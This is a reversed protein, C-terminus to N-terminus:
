RKNTIIAGAKKLRSDGARPLTSANSISINKIAARRTNHTAFTITTVVSGMYEWSHGNFICLQDGDNRLDCAVQQWMTEWEDSTSDLYEVSSM